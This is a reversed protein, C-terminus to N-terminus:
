VFIFGLPVFVKPNKIKFVRSCLDISSNSLLQGDTVLDSQKYMGSNDGHIIKVSELHSKLEKRKIRAVVKIDIDNIAFGANNLSNLFEELSLRFFREWYSYAVPVFYARCWAILDTEPIAVLIKELRALGEVCEDYYYDTLEGFEALYRM